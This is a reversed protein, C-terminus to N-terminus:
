AVRSTRFLLIGTDRYRGNVRMLGMGLGVGLHRRWVQRVVHERRAM